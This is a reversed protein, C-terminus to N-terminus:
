PASVTLTEFDVGVPMKEPSSVAVGIKGQSFNFKSDSVTAALNQNVYLNLDSGKCEATLLNSAMGTNILASDGSLM